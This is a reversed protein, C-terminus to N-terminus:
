LEATNVHPPISLLPSDMINLQRAIASMLCLNSSMVPLGTETQLPTIAGLTPMGTGTFVIADLQSVDLRRAIALADASSLEYIGHVNEGSLKVQEYGTVKYGAANWFTLAHQGLWDPYPSVIGIHKAGLMQLSERVAGAATIVPFGLQASFKETLAADEEPGILYSSGTCAIGFADIDLDDFRGAYHPTENLYDALRQELDQATSTLRTAVLSLGAPRLAFAEQEVTPNAQPVGIGVIGRSGYETPRIAM